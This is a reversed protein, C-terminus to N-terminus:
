VNLSKHDKAFKVWSTIGERGQLVEAGKRFRLEEM